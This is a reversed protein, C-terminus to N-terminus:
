IFLCIVIQQYYSANVTSSYLLLKRTGVVCGCGYQYEICCCENELYQKFICICYNKSILINKKINHKHSTHSINLKTNIECFGVLWVIFKLWHDYKGLLSFYPVLINLNLNLCFFNFSGQFDRFFSKSIDDYHFVAHVCVVQFFYVNM